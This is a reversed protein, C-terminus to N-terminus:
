DRRPPVQRVVRSEPCVDVDFVEPADCYKQTDVNQRAILTGSDITKGTDSIVQFHFQDGDLEVLM